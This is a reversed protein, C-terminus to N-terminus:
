ACATEPETRDPRWRQFTGQRLKDYAEDEMYEAECIRGIYKDRNDWVEKAEAHTMKGPGIGTQVTVLKGKRTINFECNIRGVRGLPEGTKANVAELFSVVRLDITPKPKIKQTTWLRKGPQFMKTLSCVVVGEAKPKHQRIIDFVHEAAAANRVVAVPILRVPCAVLATEHATQVSVLRDQFERRREIYPRHPAAEVDFDFVHLVLKGCEAVPVKKRALGSIDKFSMGEVYLEGVFSGDKGMPLLREAWQIIHPISTVTENQRSWAFIHSGIRRIRVPVGDLKESVAAPFEMKDPTWPKYLEISENAM